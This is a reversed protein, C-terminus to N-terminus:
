SWETGLTGRHRLSFYVQAPFTPNDPGRRAAHHTIGLMSYHSRCLRFFTLGDKAKEKEHIGQSIGWGKSRLVLYVRLGAFAAVSNGLSSQHSSGLDLRGCNSTCDLSSRDVIDSRINGFAVNIKRPESQSLREMATILKEATRYRCCYFNRACVANSLYTELGRYVAGGCDAAELEQNGGLAAQAQNNPLPRVSRTAACRKMAKPCCLLSM